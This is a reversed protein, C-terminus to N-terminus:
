PIEASRRSGYAKGVPREESRATTLTHSLISETYSKTKPDYLQKFDPGVACASLGGACILLLLNLRSLAPAKSLFM